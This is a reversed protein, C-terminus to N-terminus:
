GAWCRVIFGNNSTLALRKGITFCLFSSSISVSLSVQSHDISLNAHYGMSVVGATAVEVATEQVKVIMATKRGSSYARSM